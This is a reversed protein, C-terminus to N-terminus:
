FIGGWETKMTTYASHGMVVLMTALLRLADYEYIRNTKKM